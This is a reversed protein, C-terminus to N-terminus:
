ATACASPTSSSSTWERDPKVGAIVAAAPHEGAGHADAAPQLVPLRLRHARAAAEHARRRGDHHHRPGRDGVRGSTPRDLGALLHMLTSKGSGSPGMVATLRGDAIDLSVDALAQVASDGAGYRRTLNRAYVTAEPQDVLTLAPAPGIDVTHVPRPLPQASM